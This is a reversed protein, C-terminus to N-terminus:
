GEKHGGRNRVRGAAPRIPLREAVCATAKDRRAPAGSAHRIRQDADLVNVLIVSAAAFDDVDQAADIEVDGLAFEQAENAGAAGALAGQEVQDGAEVFRGLPPDHDAIVHDGIKRLGVDAMPAAMVEAKHKLEIM